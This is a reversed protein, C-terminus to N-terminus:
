ATAESLHNPNSYQSMHLYKLVLKSTIKSYKKTSGSPTFRDLFQWYGIKLLKAIKHELEADATNLLSSVTPPFFIRGPNGKDM